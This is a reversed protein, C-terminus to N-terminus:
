KLCLCGLGGSLAGGDALGLESLGAGEVGRAGVFGDVVGGGDVKGVHGAGGVRDCFVRQADREDVADGARGTGGGVVDGVDDVARQDGRDHFVGAMNGRRVSKSLRLMLTKTLQKLLHRLLDLLHHLLRLLDLTEQSRQKTPHHLIHKPLLLKNLSLNHHPTSPSPSSSATSAQSSLKLM